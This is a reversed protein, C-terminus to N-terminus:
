FVFAFKLTVQARSWERANECAFQAMERFDDYLKQDAKYIRSSNRVVILISNSRHISTLDNLYDSLADWNEPTGPLRLAKGAHALLAAKTTMRAGDLELVTYGAARAYSVLFDANSSSLDLVDSALAREPSGAPVPVAAAEVAPAAAALSDFAAGAKASGCAFM